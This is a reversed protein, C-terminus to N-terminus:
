SGYGNFGKKRIIDPFLYECQDLDVSGKIGPVSGKSTYQWMHCNETAHKPPQSSYRAVWWTFPLLFTKDLLDIFTSVDSGYIGTYYKKSECTGCFSVTYLTNDQKKKKNWAEVDIYIPMDFKKDKLQDLFFRATESAETVVDKSYSPKVYAYAGVHLGAETAKKYYEEFKKDKYPKSGKSGVARIIVFNYGAEKIKKFDTVTNFQSIDIGKM